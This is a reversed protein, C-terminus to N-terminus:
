EDISNISPPWISKNIPYNGKGFRWPRLVNDIFNYIKKRTAGYEIDDCCANYGHMYGRRFSSDNYNERAKKLTEKTIEIEKM